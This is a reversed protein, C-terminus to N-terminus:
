LHSIYIIPISNETGSITTQLQSVTIKNINKLFLLIAGNYLEQLLEHVDVLVSNSLRSAKKRLPFRFITGQFHQGPLCGLVEFPTFQDAFGSVWMPELTCRVGPKQSTATPVYECLPDFIVLQDGSLFCPTDTLNYTSVFGIGFRGTKKTDNAKSGSGLECITDFDTESFTKNNYFLLAEGQLSKMSPALLKGTPHQRKDHIIHIETAGADDANQILESIVSSAPYDHTITHITNVLSAYQGFSRINGTNMCSLAAEGPLVVGFKIVVQSSSVSPHLESYGRIAMYEPLGKEL